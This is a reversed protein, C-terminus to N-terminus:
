HVYESSPRLNMLDEEESTEGWSFFEDIIRSVLSDLDDFQVGGTQKAIAQIIHDSAERDTLSDSGQEWQGEGKFIDASVGLSFLLLAIDKKTFKM